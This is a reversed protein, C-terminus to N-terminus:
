GSFARVLNILNIAAAAATDTITHHWYDDSSLLCDVKVRPVGMNDNSNLFHNNQRNWYPVRSQWAKNFPMSHGCVSAPTWIRCEADLTTETLPHTTLCHDVYTTPWWETEKWERDYVAATPYCVYLTCFSVPLRKRLWNSICVPECDSAEDTHNALYWGSRFM